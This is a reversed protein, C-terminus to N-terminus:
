LGTKSVVLAMLAGLGGLFTLIMLLKFQFFGLYFRVISVFAIVM